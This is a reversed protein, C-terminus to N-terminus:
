FDKVDLLRIKSLYMLAKQYRKENGGGQKHLADKGAGYDLICGTDWMMKRNVWPAQVQIRSISKLALWNSIILDDSLLCNNDQLCLNLYSKWGNKFYSRHYCVSGYGEIVQVAGITFIPAILEGHFNFGSLGMVKPEAIIKNMREYLELTHPLYLIDDDITVIYVDEDEPILDLTPALKMIPGLDIDTRNIEVGPISIETPYEEFNKFKHPLNLIIRDPAPIQSNISNITESIRSIRSPSTTLSVIFKM